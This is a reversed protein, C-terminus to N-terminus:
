MLCKCWVMMGFVEAIGVLESETSSGTNMKNKRSINVLAGRGMSMMAGTHGKFEWHVGYSDDVWWRIINFVYSKMHRKMYLTGKLYMLRHKLKAWDDEDPEKVRTTLSSM